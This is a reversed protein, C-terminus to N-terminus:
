KKAALEQKVLRDIVEIMGQQSGATRPTVAYKGAVVVTPTSEIRYNRLAQAGQRMQMDVRFSGFAAKAKDRPVGQEVFFDILEDNNKFRRNKEHIADFLPEHIKDLAGISEAAYYAQALPRWGENFVVAVRTLTVGEPAQELWAEMLPRFDACHPCGYSFFERVEVGGEVTPQPTALKTYGQGQAAAAFSVLLLLACAWRAIRYM